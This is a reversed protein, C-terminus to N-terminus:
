SLISFNVCTSRCAYLITLTAVFCVVIAEEIVIANRTKESAAVRENAVSEFTRTPVMIVFM